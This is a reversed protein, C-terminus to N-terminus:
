SRVQRSVAEISEVRPLRLVVDRKRAVSWRQIPMAVAMETTAAPMTQNSNPDKMPSWM